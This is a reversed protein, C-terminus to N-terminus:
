AQPNPAESGELGGPPGGHERMRREFTDVFERPADKGFFLELNDWTERMRELSRAFMGEEYERIAADLDNGANAASSIIAKSLELGDLMALNVGEGAMPTMLHAADGLLTIGPKSTWQFDLPLM